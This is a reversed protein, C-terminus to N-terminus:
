NPVGIRKTHSCKKTLNSIDYGTAKILEVAKELTPQQEGVLNYFIIFNDNDFVYVCNVFDRFIRKKFDLENENERQKAHEKLCILIEKKTKNFINLLKIKNHEKILDQKQISLSKAEETIKQKLEKDNAFEILLKVINSQKDDIKKIEQELKKIETSIENSKYFNYLNTALEELTENSLIFQMTVKFIDDELKIKNEKAKNCTHKRYQQSCAYYCYKNKQKNIGSVGVMSDGCYGCFAKGTLLYEQKAKIHGGMKRNKQLKIQVKDFLEKSIIPPFTTTSEIDAYRSLGIYKTNKLITDFSTITFKCNKQTRIGKLNLDEGIEKKTKGNAYENFIYQIIKANENDVVYKKNEVKYGLPITGGTSNGKLASERMGRKVKQALEVSYYEAFSELMGELIIGEPKDSIFETASLTKIGCKRLLEKYVASDYRNRAFRDFKYVLVCEFKGKKSDEIMNKFNTRNDTKGSLARDIYYGVININNNKAYEECVRLQGEISQETQRHSSYRAYIVANM